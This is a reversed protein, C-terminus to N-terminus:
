GQAFLPVKTVSLKLVALFSFADFSSNEGALGFKLSTSKITNKGCFDKTVFLILFVSCFKDSKLPVTV